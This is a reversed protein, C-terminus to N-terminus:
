LPYSYFWFTSSLSISNIWDSCCLPFLSFFFHSSYWSSLSLILLHLTQIMPTESLSSFSLLASHIKLSIIALFNGSRTFLMCRQTFFSLLSWILFGLFGDLSVDDLRQFSAVFFFEQFDGPLSAHWRWPVGVLLSSSKNRHLNMGILKRM